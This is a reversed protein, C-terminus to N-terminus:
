ARAAALVSIKKDRIGRVIIRDIRVCRGFISPLDIGKLSRIDHTAPYHYSADKSYPSPRRIRGELVLRHSSPTGRNM